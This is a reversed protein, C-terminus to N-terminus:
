LLKPCPQTRPLVRCPTDKPKRYPESQCIYQREAATYPLNRAQDDRPTPNLSLPPAVMRKSATRTDYLHISLDIFADGIHCSCWINANTERRALIPGVSQIVGWVGLRETRGHRGQVYM